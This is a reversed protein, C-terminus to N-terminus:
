LTKLFHAEFPKFGMREYLSFLKDTKSNFVCAMILQTFGRAKLEQEVKHLLFIGYKRHDKNVYWIIEQYVLKHNLPSTIAMGALVGECKGNIILLFANDKYQEITQNLKDADIAASYEKIAEEYFNRIVEIIDQRYQEDYPVVIM